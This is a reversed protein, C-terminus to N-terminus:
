KGSSADPSSSIIRGHGDLIIYEYNGNILNFLVAQRPTYAIRVRDGQAIAHYCASPVRFSMPSKTDPASDSDPDVAIDVSYHTRGSDSDESTWLAHVYGDRWLKIGGALDARLAQQDHYISLTMLLGILFLVGFGFLSGYGHLEPWAIVIGLGVAVTALGGILSLRPPMASVQSRLHNLERSDLPASDTEDHTLRTTM